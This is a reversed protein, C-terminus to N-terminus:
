KSGQISTHSYTCTRDCRPGAPGRCFTFGRASFRACDNLDRAELKEVGTLKGSTDSFWVGSLGRQQKRHPRLWLLQLPSRHPMSEKSAVAVAMIRARLGHNGAPFLSPGSNRYRKPRAVHVSLSSVRAVAVGPRPRRGAASARIGRGDRGLPTPCVRRQGAGLAM